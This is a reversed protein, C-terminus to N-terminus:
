TFCYYGTVLIFDFSTNKDFKRWLGLCIAATAGLELYTILLTMSSISKLLALHMTSYPGPVPLMVFSIKICRLWSAFNIQKSTFWFNQLYRLLFIFFELSAIIFSEATFISM